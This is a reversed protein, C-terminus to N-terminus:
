GNESHPVSSFLWTGSDNLQYSTNMSTRLKDGKSQSLSLPRSTQSQSHKLTQPHLVPSPSHISTAIHLGTELEALSIRGDKDADM